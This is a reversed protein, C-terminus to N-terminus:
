RPWAKAPRVLARVAADIRELASDLAEDSAAFSMRVCDDDGFASGPVLAVGASELLYLCFDDSSAITRGAGTAGFLASVDPFLYFAGEPAHLKLGPMASFRALARDRRVRFAAAMAAAPAQDGDLAAIGARQAISSACTTTQGQIAVCAAVLDKPGALYGLRWGTMAHSKSLGGVVIVRDAIAPITAPSPVDPVYRIREYIEDSLIWLEPFRQLVTALAQLESLTYVAGSPNSPSCLILLRTRTTIAAALKAPTLKYAEAATCPVFVPSAGALKVMEAYSLWAPTPILAEDGPGVLALIANSLASKAGCSVMIDQPRYVLGSDRELKRAIAERLPLEGAVPTYRDAGDTIAKIAAERVHAPPHFDPEGVTLDVIDRGAAKLERARQNMAITRSPEIGAARASLANM